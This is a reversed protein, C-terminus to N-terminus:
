YTLDAEQAISNKVVLRGNKIAFVNWYRGDGQNTPVNFTQILTSGKYLMVQSDSSATTGNGAYKHVYYYYDQNDSAYLTVTEPGYSTVDDLDLNCIEADNDYVSKNRYYVHFSENNSLAGQLHSDMDRPNKGWTLVIRYVSNSVVPTITADQSLYDIPSLLINKYGTVYGSKFYAITYAGCILHEQASLEYYGNQNTSTTAVVPGTTNNWNSRVCITVDSVPEGTIADTITGYASGPNLGANLLLFTENYTVEDEQVSVSMKVSKYSGASVKVVYTGIPVDIAYYGNTDSRTQDILDGNLDYVRIIANSIQVHDSASVVDGAISGSATKFRYNLATTNDQPFIMPHAKHTECCHYGGNVSLDEGRRNQEFAMELANEVTIYQNQQDKQCMNSLTDRMIMCNYNTHITNTNAIVTTAGKDIFAQALQYQPTSDQLMDKGSSCAGLYIFAGDMEGVYKEIFGGTISYTNRGASGYQILVRHALIDTTYSDSTEATQLEGLLLFSGFSSSWGGHGHWLVIDSDGIKKVLDLTVADLDYNNASDFTYESFTHSIMQASDDTAADSLDNLTSNYTNYFPQYTTIHVENGDSDTGDDTSLTYIFPIHNSLIVSFNNSEEEYSEVIGSQILEELKNQVTTIADEESGALLYGNEDLYTHIAENLQAAIQDSMLFDEASLDQYFGITVGSSAVNDAMAYYTVTQVKNSSLPVQLTYVGDNAAADGHEGDDSMSGLQTGTEDFVLIDHDSIERDTFIEATFTVTQETGVLLDWTDTNFSYIEIDDEPDDLITHIEEAEKEWCAYLTLDRMVSQNFDYVTTLAANTYWALFRYGTKVPPDPEIAKEGGVIKQTPIRNGGNSNFTITFQNRTIQESLEYTAMCTIAIKDSGVDLTKTISLQKAHNVAEAKPLTWSMTQSLMLFALILSFLKKGKQNKKLFLILAVILAIIGLIALCFVVIWIILSTKDGTKANSGWITKGSSSEEVISKDRNTRDNTNTLNVNNNHEAASQDGSSADMSSDPSADYDTDNETQKISHNSSNGPLLDVTLSASANKKIKGVSKSANMGTQIHYGQPIIVELNVNLLDLDSTNKASLDISIPDSDDYSSQDTSITLELGDQIRTEARAPIWIISLLVILFFSIKSLKKIAKM